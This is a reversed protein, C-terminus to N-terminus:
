TSYTLLGRSSKNSRSNGRKQLRKCRKGSVVIRRKGLKIQSEGRMILTLSRTIKWNSISSYERRLSSIGTMMMMMTARKKAKRVKVNM